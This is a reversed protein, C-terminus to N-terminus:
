EHDGRKQTSSPQSRVWKELDYENVRWGAGPLRRGPLRGQRLWLSVTAIKIHLREAVEATTLWRKEDPPQMRTREQMM